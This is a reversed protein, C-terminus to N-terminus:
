RVNKIKREQIKYNIKLMLKLPLIKNAIYTLKMSLTPIIITKNKNLKKITYKALEKADIAKTTFECNANKNFNTDVPGPCLVSIKVNSKKSKLEQYIALTYNYLYVKTSYYTNHLPGPIFAAASSVNLIQGQDKKIFEKLFLKTLIQPTIVNTKIMELEKELDVEESPGMLGIGANNILLDIKNKTQEYLKKANDPISLDMPIIEINTRLEKKLEELKKENRAVLILDYGQNSLEKALEKGIGSSAGTILVKM